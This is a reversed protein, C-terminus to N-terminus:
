VLVKYILVKLIYHLKVNAVRLIYDPFIKLTYRKVRKLFFTHLHTKNLFYFHSKLRTGVQSILMLVLFLFKEM